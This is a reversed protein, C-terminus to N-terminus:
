PDKSPGSDFVRFRRLGSTTWNQDLDSRTPKPRAYLASLVEVPLTAELIERSIVACRVLGVAFVSATHVGGRYLMAEGVCAADSLYGPLPMRGSAPDSPDELVDVRAFGSLIIQMCSAEEGEAVITYNDEYLKEVSGRELKRLMKAFSDSSLPGGATSQLAVLTPLKSLAGILDFAKNTRRQTSRFMRRSMAYVIARSTIVISAARPKAHLLALEGFCRADPETASYYMVTKEEGDTPQTGSPRLLRAATEM